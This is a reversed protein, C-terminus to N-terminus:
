RSFILCSPTPTISNESNIDCKIKIEAVSSFYVKLNVHYISSTIM